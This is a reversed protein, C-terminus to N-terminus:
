FGADVDVDAFAIPGCSFAVGVLMSSIRAARFNQTKSQIIAYPQLRPSRALLLFYLWVRVLCMPWAHMFYSGGPQAAGAGKASVVWRGGLRYRCRGFIKQVYLCDLLSLRLAANIVGFNRDRSVKEVLFLEVYKAGGRRVM